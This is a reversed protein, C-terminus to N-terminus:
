RRRERWLSFGYVLGAVVALILGAWFIWYPWETSRHTVLLFGIGAYLLWTATKGILNVKLEYGDPAVTKYGALLLLDRGLILVLGAWPMHDAVFLLIVAADIMLRDALPDWVRGFDSEVRWRRALFGDIQDTVGAVGFVIGAPWSHGGEASLMLAVFVPILILRAITLANPLQQLPVSVARTAMPTSLIRGHGLGEAQGAEDIGMAVRELPGQAAAAAAAVEPGPALRHEGFRLALGGLEYAPLVRLDIALEASAPVRRDALKVVEAEGLRERRDLRGLLGTHPDDDQEGRVPAAAERAKPLVRHRVVQMLDLVQAAAVDTDPEGGVGHAGARRVPQLLDAAVCDRLLQRQMDVGVLLRALDLLAEGLVTETGDLQQFARAAEALSRRDDVGRVGVAGLEVQDGRRARADAGARRGLRVEAVAEERDLPHALPADPQADAGVRVNADIRQLLQALEFPDRAPLAAAAVHDRRLAEQAETGVFAGAREPELLPVVDVDIEPM